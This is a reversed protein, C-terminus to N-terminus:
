STTLSTAAAGQKTIVLSASPYAQRMIKACREALGVDSRIGCGVGAFCFVALTLVRLEAKLCEM